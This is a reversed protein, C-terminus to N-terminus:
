NIGNEDYVNVHLMYEALNQFSKNYIENQKITQRFKDTILSISTVSNCNMKKLGNESFPLMIKALRGESFLDGETYVFEEYVEGDNYRISIKDKNTLFITKSVNFYFILAYYNVSDANFIMGEVACFEPNLALTDLTTFIMIAGSSDVTRKSIFQAQTSTSYLILFLAITMKFM